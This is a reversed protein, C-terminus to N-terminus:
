YFTSSISILREDEDASLCTHPVKPETLQFESLVCKLCMLACKVSVLSNLKDVKLTVILLPCIHQTTPSPFKLPYEAM